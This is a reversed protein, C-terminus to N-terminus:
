RSVLLLAGYFLGNHLAHAGIAPILSGSREYMWALAMGLVATPLRSAPAHMMAFCVASVVAATWFGFWQRLATYLLGRFLTEELVPAVASAMAAFAIVSAANRVSEAAMEQVASREFSVGLRALVLAVILIAALVLPLIRLYTAVGFLLDRRLSGFRLGVAEFGRGRRRLAWRVLCLFVAGLAVQASLVTYVFAVPSGELTVGLLSPALSATGLNLSLGTIFLCLLLFPDARPGAGPDDGAGATVGNEVM